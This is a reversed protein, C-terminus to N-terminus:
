GEVGAPPCSTTLLIVIEIASLMKIEHLLSFSLFAFPFCLTPGACVAEPPRREMGGGGGGRRM